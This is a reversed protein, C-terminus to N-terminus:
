DFIGLILSAQWLLVLVFVIAILKNLILPLKLLIKQVYYNIGSFFIAIYKFIYDLLSTKKGFVNAEYIAIAVPHFVISYLAVMFNTILVLMVITSPYPISLGIFILSFLSLIIFTIM